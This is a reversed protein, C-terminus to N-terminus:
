RLRRISRTPIAPLQGARRTVESTSGYTLIRIDDVFFNEAVVPTLTTYRFRLLIRKGAFRSIDMSEETWTNIRGDIVPVGQPREGAFGSAPHTLTGALADWTVGRDSSIEVRLCNMFDQSFGKLWFRLETFDAGYILASDLQLSSELYIPDVQNGPNAAFSLRGSHASLSTTDWEIASTSTSIWRDRTLEADDALLISPPGLRVNLTDLNTGGPYDLQIVISVM